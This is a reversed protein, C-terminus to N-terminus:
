VMCDTSLCRRFSQVLPVSECLDSNSLSLLLLAARRTAAVGLSKLPIEFATPAMLRMRVIYVRVITKAHERTKCLATSRPIRALVVLASPRKKRAVRKALDGAQEPM